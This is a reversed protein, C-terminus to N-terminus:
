GAQPASCWVDAVVVEVIDGDYMRLTPCLEYGGYHKHLLRGCRQCRDGDATIDSIIGMTIVGPFLRLFFSKSAEDRELVAYIVDSKIM